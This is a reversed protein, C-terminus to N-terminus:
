VGKNLNLITRRRPDYEKAIIHLLLEELSATIAVVGIGVCVPTAVPTKIVYPLSFVGLGTMKNMYTHQSAFRRYKVAAVGYASFRLALSLLVELWVPRPLTAWLVPFIRVGMVTYFMLDAISDLKAGLDSILNYRRAIWGDLVDSLGSLTYIVFFATSFPAVFLLCATGAIRLATICNPLYRISLATTNRTEM